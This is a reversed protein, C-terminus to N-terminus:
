EEELLKGLKEDLEKMRTAEDKLPAAPETAPRPTAPAPRRTMPRDAMPSALSEKFPDTRKLESPTVGEKDLSIILYRIIEPALRMDNGFETIGATPYSFVLTAYYGYELKGIPYALRQKGWSDTTFIQGDKQTIQNQLRTIIKQLELEQTEPSVIFTVEYNSFAIKEAM